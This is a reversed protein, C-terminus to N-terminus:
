RDETQRTATSPGNEIDVRLVLTEANVPGPIVRLRQGESTREQNQVHIFVRIVEVVACRCRPVDIREGLVDVPVLNVVAKFSRLLCGGYQPVLDDILLGM